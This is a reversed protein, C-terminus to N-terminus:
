KSLTDSNFSLPLLIRSDPIILTYRTGYLILKVPYQQNNSIELLAQRCAGCPTVPEGSIEEKNRAAIAMTHITRDPYHANAYYLAIREACVGVPFSANEQNNGSIIIDGDLLVSSGVKFQSYPAYGNESTKIAREAVKKEQASLESFAITYYEETFSHKRM